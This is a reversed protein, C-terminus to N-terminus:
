VDKRAKKKKKLAPQSANLSEDKLGLEDFVIQSSLQGSTTSGSDSVVDSVVSQVIDSGPVAAKFTDPICTDATEPLKKGSTKMESSTAASPTENRPPDEPVAKLLGTSRDKRFDESERVAEDHGFVPVKDKAINESCGSKAHSDVISVSPINKAKEADRSGSVSNQTVETTLKSKKKKSAKKPKSEKGATQLAEFNGEDSEVPSSVVGAPQQCSDVVQKLSVDDRHSEHLLVDNDDGNSTKKNSELVTNEALVIEGATLVQESDAAKAEKVQVDASTRTKSADANTDTKKTKQKKKPGAVTWDGSTEAVKQVQQRSVSATGKKPTTKPKTETTQKEKSSVASTSKVPSQKVSVKSIVANNVGESSASTTTKAKRQKTKKSVVNIRSDRDLQIDDYVDVSSSSAKGNSSKVRKILLFAVLLMALCSCVSIPVFYDSRNLTEIVESLAMIM